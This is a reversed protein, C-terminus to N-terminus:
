GLDIASRVCAFAESAASRECRLIKKLDGEGWRLIVQVVMAGPTTSPCAPDDCPVQDIGADTAATAIEGFAEVVARCDPEGLSNCRVRIGSIELTSPVASEPAPTGPVATLETSTPTPRASPAPAPGVACGAILAAVLIAVLTGPHTRV